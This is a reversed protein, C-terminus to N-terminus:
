DKHFQEFCNREARLCLYVKCSQCKVKTKGSCGSNRCRMANKIDDMEPMHRACSTRQAKAPISTVRRKAPPQGDDSDGASSDDFIEDDVVALYFQAVEIRFALFQLIDKAPTKQKMKDEKYLLWSNVLALDVFHLITRVTWKKTRAKMRYFSIMRDCLDVGGMKANYARVISPRKVEVYKKEKKSWRRCIDEPIKAHVSSAMNIPKNDFWKVFAVKKDQRVLVDCSGRGQKMLVKDDVVKAIAAPIRNRMLTGTVYIQKGLMFDILNISTFYRDCYVNTGPSVSECLHVIVAGGLGLKLHPPTPKFTTEGQYIVFDLVLGEPSALVFNKLGVPNPKNPVYQRLSCAGTFPIMQEDICVDQPRRQLLCGQRIIELLPRVKWLRDAKKMSDSIDVDVVVKLSNRIRFFRDRSITKAIIPIRLSNQWFMKIHPYGLSSMLISAGFFRQIESPTTNLSRGSLAVSNVNTCNSLLQFTDANLYQQVYDLPKWDARAEDADNHLESFTAVSPLFTDTKKWFETKVGRFTALPENDSDDESSSPSADSPDHVQSEPVEDESLDSVDSGDELIKKLAAATNYHETIPSSL